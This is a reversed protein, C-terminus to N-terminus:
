VRDRLEILYGRVEGRASFGTGGTVVRILSLRRISVTSFGTSLPLIQVQDDETPAQHSSGINASVIGPTRHRPEEESDSTLSRLAPNIDQPHVEPM